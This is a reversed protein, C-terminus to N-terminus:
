EEKKYKDLEKKILEYWDDITVEKCSKNFPCDHLEMYVAPCINSFSVDLQSYIKCDNAFSEFISPM